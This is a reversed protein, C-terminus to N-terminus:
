TAAGRRRRRYALAGIMMALLAMVYTSPEPIAMNHDNIWDIESQTLLVGGGPINDSFLQPINNNGFTHVAFQTNTAVSMMVPDEGLVDGLGTVEVNIFDDLLYPGGSDGMFSTGLGSMSIPGADWTVDTYTYVGHNANETADLIQNNQFRQIGGSAAGSNNWGDQVMMADLHPTGTRGYGIQTFHQFKAADIADQVIDPPNWLDIPQVSQFFADNGGEYKVIAVAIDVNGTSGGQHLFQVKLPARPDVGMFPDPRDGFKIFNSGPFNHDATLVTFYTTTTVPDEWKKIVTGTAFSTAHNRTPVLHVVSFLRDGPQASTRQEDPATALAVHAFVLFISIALALLRKHM